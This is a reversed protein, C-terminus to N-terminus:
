EESPLLGSVVFEEIEIKDVIVEDEKAQVKCENLAVDLSVCQLHAYPSM